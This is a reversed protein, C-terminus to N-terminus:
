RVKRTLPQRSAAVRRLAATVLLGMGLLLPVLGLLLEFVGDDGLDRGSSGEVWETPLALLVAGIVVLVIAVEVRWSRGIRRLSM